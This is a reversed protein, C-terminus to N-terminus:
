AGCAAPLQRLQVADPLAKEVAEGPESERPPVHPRMLWWLVLVLVVAAALIAAIPILNHGDM